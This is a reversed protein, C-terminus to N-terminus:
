TDKFVGMKSYKKIRSTCLSGSSSRDMKKLDQVLVKKIADSMSIHGRHAGGIPEKVIGDILGFSKATQADNKLAQAAEKNYSPDRWLISACSEPSIVSYVSHELMYISNAIALALAGGSGGEGIIFSIVPVNLAFMEKINKAIAEGQGREEGAIGPYAGPTDVFTVIPKSFKDALKFLRLAKRYGEPQAMGFNRLISEETKRGRQHGVVLVTQGELRAMGGIVARDDGFNRDGHFEEFDTFINEIYDKTFPRNLHRAVQTKQWNDLSGYLSKLGKKMKESVADLKKADSVSLNEKELLKLATERLGGIKKKEFDLLAANFFDQRDTEKKSM